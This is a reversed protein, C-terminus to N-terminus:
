QERDDVPGALEADLGFRGQVLGCGLEFGAEARHFGVGAAAEGAEGEILHFGEPLRHFPLSASVGYYYRYYYYYYSANMRVWIRSALKAPASFIFNNSVNSSSECRFRGQGKLSQNIWGTQSRTAVITATTIM